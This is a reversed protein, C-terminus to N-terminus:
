SPLKPLPRLPRPPSPKLEFVGLQEPQFLCWCVGESRQNEIEVGVNDEGRLSLRLV